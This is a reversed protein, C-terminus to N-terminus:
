APPQVARATRATRKTLLDTQSVVGVVTGEVDVVPLGSVRNTRLANAMERYSADSRVAVVHTTMVDKARAHM